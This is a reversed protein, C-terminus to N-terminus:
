KLMVIRRTTEQGGVLLRCFYAGSAVRIGRNDRGDWVISQRGGSGIRARLTRVCRGTLEFVRLEAQSGLDQGGDSFSIRVTGGSPSPGIRCTEELPRVEGERAVEIAQPVESKRFVLSPDGFLNWMEFNKVGAGELMMFIAGSYVLQGISPRDDDLLALITGLQAYQTGCQDLEGGSMYVAIAGQPPYSPAAGREWMWSEAFCENPYYHEPDDPNYGSYTFKAMHCSASHILPLMGTNHVYAENHIKDRRMIKPEENQVPFRNHWGDPCGHNSVLMLGLGDNLHNLLFTV